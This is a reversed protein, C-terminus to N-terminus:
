GAAEQETVGVCRNRQMSLLIGLRGKTGNQDTVNLHCGVWYWESGMTAHMHHDNPFSLPYDAAPFDCDYNAARGLLGGIVFATDTPYPSVDLRSAAQYITDFDPIQVPQKTTPDIIQNVAANVSLLYSQMAQSASKQIAM